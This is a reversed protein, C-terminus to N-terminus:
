HVGHTLVIHNTIRRALDGSKMTTHNLGQETKVYTGFAASNESVVIDNPAFTGRIEISISSFDVDGWEAPKSSVVTAFDRSGTTRYLLTAIAAPMKMGAAEAGSMRRDLPNRDAEAGYSIFPIPPPPYSDNFDRLRDTTLDLSVFAVTGLLALLVPHRARVAGGIALAAILDAAPSGRHPTSLTYVSLVQLKEADYHDHLYARTVM